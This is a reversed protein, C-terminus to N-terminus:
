LVDAHPAICSTKERPKAGKPMPRRGVGFRGKTHLLFSKQYETTETLLLGLSKRRKCLEQPLTVQEIIM